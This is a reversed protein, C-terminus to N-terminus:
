RGSGLKPRRNPRYSRGEMLLHHSTNILRDLTSEGVVANPFLQYWDSPARNSTLVLSRGPRGIRESVLEYFDDAQAATLERMAFDDVILLEVKSLKKLRVEFSRDAHGGALEALLRSTLHGLACAVHSKGVGVPGYCILGEGAEIFELRALDRIQAQPLKANYSFDFAELTAETPFHATKLRRQVSSAERRAMEDELLVQLFEAHGLRGARAEALRTELTELM